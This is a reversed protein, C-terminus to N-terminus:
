DQLSSIAAKNTTLIFENYKKYDNQVNHVRELEEKLGVIMAEYDDKMQKVQEAFLM